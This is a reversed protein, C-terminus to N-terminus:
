FGNVRFFVLQDSRVSRVVEGKIADRLPVDEYVHHMLVLAGDQHPGLFVCKVFDANFTESATDARAAIASLNVGRSVAEGTSSFLSGVFFIIAATITLSVMLELITFASRRSGRGRRRQNCTCKAIM